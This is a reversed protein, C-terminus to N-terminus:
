VLLWSIFGSKIFNLRKLNNHRKVRRIKIESGMLGANDPFVKDTSEM